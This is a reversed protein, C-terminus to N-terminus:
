RGSERLKEIYEKLDSFADLADQATYIPGWHWIANSVYANHPVDEYM